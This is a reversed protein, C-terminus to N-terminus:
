YWDFKTELYEELRQNYPRYYEALKNRIIDATPNYSGSYHKPYANLQYDRLDFIKM